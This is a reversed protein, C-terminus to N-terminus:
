IGAKHDPPWLSYRSQALRPRLPLARGSNHCTPSEGKLLNKAASMESSLQCTSYGARAAYSAHMPKRLSPPAKCTADSIRSKHSEAELIWDASRLGRDNRMPSSLQLVHKPSHAVRTNICYTYVYICICICMYM